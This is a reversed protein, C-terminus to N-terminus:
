GQDGFHRMSEPSGPRAINEGNWGTQPRNITEVIEIIGGRLLVGGLVRAMNADRMRTRHAEQVRDFLGKSPSSPKVLPNISPKEPSRFLAAAANLKGYVRKRLEKMSINHMWALRALSDATLWGNDDFELRMKTLRGNLDTAEIRNDVFYLHYTFAHDTLVAEPQGPVEMTVTLQKVMLRTVLTLQSTLLATTKRAGNMLNVQLRFDDQAEQLQRITAESESLKRELERSSTATANLASQLDASKRQELALDKQVSDLQGGLDLFSNFLHSYHDLARGLQEVAAKGERTQGGVRGSGNANRPRRFPPIAETPRRVAYRDVHNYDSMFNGKQDDSQWYRFM